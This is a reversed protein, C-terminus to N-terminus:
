KRWIVQCTESSACWQGGDHSLISILSQLNIPVTRCREIEIKDIYDVEELYKLGAKIADAKNTFFRTGEDTYFTYVTYGNNM